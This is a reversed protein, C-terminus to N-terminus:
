VFLVKEKERCTFFIGGGSKRSIDDSPTHSCISGVIVCESERTRVRVYKYVCPRVYGCGDSGSGSEQIILNIAAAAAPRVKKDFQPCHPFEWANHVILVLKM